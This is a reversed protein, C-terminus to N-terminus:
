LPLGAGRDPEAEDATGTTVVSSQTANVFLSSRRKNWGPRCPLGVSSAAPARAMVEARVACTAGRCAGIGKRRAGQHGLPMKRTMVLTIPVMLQTADWGNRCRPLPEEARGADCGLGPLAATGAWPRRVVRDEDRM